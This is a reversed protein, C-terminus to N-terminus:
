PSVSNAQGSSFPHMAKRFGGVLMRGRIRNRQEPTMRNLAQVGTRIEQGARAFNATLRFPREMGAPVSVQSTPPQPPRMPVVTTKRFPNRGAARLVRGVTNSIHNDVSIAARGAAGLTMNGVGAVANSIRDGVGGGNRSFAAGVQERGKNYLSDSRTYPTQAYMVADAAQKKLAQEYGLKFALKIQEQDMVFSRNTTKAPLM